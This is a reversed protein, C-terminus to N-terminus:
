YGLLTSGYVEMEGGDLIVGRDSFIRSGDHILIARTRTSM